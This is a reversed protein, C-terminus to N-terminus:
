RMFRQKITIIRHIETLLKKYTPLSMDILLLPQSSYLEPWQKLLHLWQLLRYGLLGLVLWQTRWPGWYSCSTLRANGSLILAGQSEELIIGWSWAAEDRVYLVGPFIAIRSQVHEVLFSHWVYPLQILTESEEKYLIQQFLWMIWFKYARFSQWLTTNNLTSLNSLISVSKWAQFFSQFSKQLLNLECGLFSGWFKLCTLNLQAHM